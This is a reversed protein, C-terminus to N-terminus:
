SRGQAPIQTRSTVRERRDLLASALRIRDRGAGGVMREATEPKRAPRILDGVLLLLEADEEVGHDDAGDGARRLGPYNRSRRAPPPARATRPISPEAVTACVQSCIARMARKVASAIPSLRSSSSESITRRSSHCAPVYPM